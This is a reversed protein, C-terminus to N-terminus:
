LNDCCNLRLTLFVILPVIKDFLEHPVQPSDQPFLQVSSEDKTESQSRSRHSHPHMIPRAYYPCLSGYVDVFHTFRTNMLFCPVNIYRQTYSGVWNTCIIAAKVSRGGSFSPNSGVVFNSTAGLRATGDYVGVTSNM